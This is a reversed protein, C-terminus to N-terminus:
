KAAFKSSDEKRIRKYLAPSFRGIEGFDNSEVSLSATMKCFKEMQSLLQKGRSKVLDGAKYSM